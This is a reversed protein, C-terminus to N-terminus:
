KIKKLEEYERAQADLEVLARHVDMKLVLAEKTIDGKTLARIQNNMAQQLREQMGTTSPPVDSTVFFHTYTKAISQKATAYWYFVGIREEPLLTKPKLSPYLVTAMEDLLTDDKTVLYGQYLNELILFSEFTIGTLDAEVAQAKGISSLRVPVAPLQELWSLATLVEALQLSTLHYEKGAYRCYVGIDTKQVDQLPAWRFLAYTKLEAPSCGESLLFFVYWLQDHTLEQWSKPLILNLTEMALSLNFGTDPLM